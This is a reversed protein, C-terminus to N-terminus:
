DSFWASQTPCPILLQTFDCMTRGYTHSSSWIWQKGLLWAVGLAILALGLLVALLELVFVIMHLIAERLLFLILLGLIVLIGGLLQRGQMLGRVRNSSAGRSVRRTVAVDM